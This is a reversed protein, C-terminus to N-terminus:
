ESGERGWQPVLLSGVGVSPRSPWTVQKPWHFILLHLLFLPRLNAQPNQNSRKQELSRGHCCARPIKQEHLVSGLDLMFGPAVGRSGVAWLLVVWSLGAVTLRESVFAFGHTTLWQTKLPRDEALTDRQREGRENKRIRIWLIGFSHCGGRWLLLFPSFSLPAFDSDEGLCLSLFFPRLEERTPLQQITVGMRGAVM